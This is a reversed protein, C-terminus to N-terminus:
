KVHLSLSKEASEFCGGRRFLFGGAVCVARFAKRASMMRSPRRATGEGARAAVGFGVFGDPERLFGDM